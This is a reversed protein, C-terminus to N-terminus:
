ADDKKLLTIEAQLGKREKPADYRDNVGGVVKFERSVNLCLQERWKEVSAPDTYKLEHHRATQVFIWTTPINESM